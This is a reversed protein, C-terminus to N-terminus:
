IHILSLFDYTEKYNALDKAKMFEDRETAFPLAVGEKLRVRISMCGARVKPRKFDEMELSSALGMEVMLLGLDTCMESIQSNCKPHNFFIQLHAIWERRPDGVLDDEEKFNRSPVKPRKAPPYVRHCSAGLDETTLFPTYLLSSSDRICMESGM